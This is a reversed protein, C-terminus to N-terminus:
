AARQKTQASNRVTQIGLFNWRLAAASRLHRLEIRKKVHVRVNVRLESRVRRQQLVRFKQFSMRLKLRKYILMGPEPALRAFDM